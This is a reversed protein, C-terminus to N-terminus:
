LHVLGGQFTVHAHQREGPQAAAAGQFDGGSHATGAESDEGAGSGRAVAQSCTSSTSGYRKDHQMRGLLVQQGVAHM